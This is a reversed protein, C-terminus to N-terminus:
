KEQNKKNCGCDFEEEPIYEKPVKQWAMVWADGSKDWVVHDDEIKLDTASFYTKAAEIANKRTHKINYPSIKNLKAKLLLKLGYLQLHQLADTIAEFEQEELKIWM